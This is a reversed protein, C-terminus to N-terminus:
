DTEGAPSQSEWQEQTQRRSGQPTGARGAASQAATSAPGARGSLWHWESWGPVPLAGYSGRRHGPLRLERTSLARLHLGTTDGCGLLPHTKARVTMENQFGNKFWHQTKCHVYRCLTYSLVSIWWGRHCSRFCLLCESAYYYLYYYYLYISVCV